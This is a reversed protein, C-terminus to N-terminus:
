GRRKREREAALYAEKDLAKKRERYAKQKEAPTLTVSKDPGKALDVAIFVLGDRLVPSKGHDPPLRVNGSEVVERMKEIVAAKKALKEELWPQYCIGAPCRQRPEHRTQCGKQLPAKSM